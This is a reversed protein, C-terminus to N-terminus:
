LIRYLYEGLGQIGCDIPSVETMTLPSGVQLTTAIAIAIIRNSQVLGSQTLGGLSCIHRSLILLRQLFPIRTVNAVSLNHPAAISIHQVLPTPGWQSHRRALTDLDAPRFPPPNSRSPKVYYRHQGQGAWVTTKSGFYQKGRSLQCGVRSVAGHRLSGWTQPVGGQSDNTRRHVEPAQPRGHGPGPGPGPGSRIFKLPPPPPPPRPNPNAVLAVGNASVLCLCWVLCVPRSYWLLEGM